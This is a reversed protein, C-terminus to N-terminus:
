RSAVTAPVPLVGDLEVRLLRGDSRGQDDVVSLSHAGGRKPTWTIPRSPRASGVFAGDVFWYLQRVGGDASAVFSLEGGGPVASGRLRYTVGHLPSLIRPGSGPATAVGGCHGPPPPSRRPMGAASFLQMLDSPWYEFVEERVFQAPTGACALTGDRRDIRVRRHVDSVRIPSRGPVFWTPVTKPCDANPLDGSALCVDVLQLGPPARWDPQPAPRIAQLAEVISFFLPAAARVGVLAPDGAGNFNGVWVVLVHQGFTGATWADRFGWSTGTKWAVPPGRAPSGDPRPTDDLMDLVMFSAEESLLRTGDVRPAGAADRLPSLVGRNRLMAYLTAVEEMTVEGGGLALALGYHREDAMRSIGASQLFQYYGPRSLRAALAVSPVNRSRTLADSASVPGSFTGDFNEPAYAGFAAPADKLVTRPHILGQDMALAYIFPKLVSGPSRKATVGNVQGEISEDTFDASGVLARVELTRADVLIAAANRLGQERSRAVYQRLRKEVLRQLELDITSRISAARPHRSLLGTVHHPAEFPLDEIRGFRLPPGATATARSREPRSDLWRTLLRARALALEPPEGASPDRRAPAQPILVLTLAEELTLDSARKGFYILSATEVGQINRGYPLLNVHAELIERKSYRLDLWLATLVQRLKGGIHRTDLRDRLRVLQMTITSGGQREGQLTRIAARALASPDVGPHALFHRDEHLLLAELFEPSVRALPTWVRYQQDAALTLRLLRGDRDRVATSLSLGQRLPTAPWNAALLLAAVALAVGAVVQSALRARTM